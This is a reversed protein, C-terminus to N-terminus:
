REFTYGAVFVTVVGGPQVAILYQGLTAPVKSLQIDHVSLTTAGAASSGVAQLFNSPGGAAIQEAIHYYVILTSQTMIKLSSVTEVPAVGASSVPSPTTGGFANVMHFPATTPNAETYTISNRSMDHVWQWMDNAASSLVSGLYRRSTDGTKVSASGNYKVPPTTSLEIAGVGANSYLYIHTWGSVPLSMSTLSLASTLAVQRGLSPVHAVGAGITMARRGDYRLQFGSIYDAGPMDIALTERATVADADDLVTRAFPTVSTRAAVDTGSFYIMENAVPTLASITTLTADATQKTGALDLAEIATSEASNATSLAINANNLATTATGSIANATSLATSADSQAANATVVAANATSVATNSNTLATNATGAIGNATVVAASADAQAQNAVILAAESNTIADAAAQEAAAQALLADDKATVALAAANESLGANIAASDSAGQALAANNVTEATLLTVNAESIDIQAKVELVETLIENTTGRTSLDGYMGDYAM